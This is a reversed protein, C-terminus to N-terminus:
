DDRRKLVGFVLAISIGILILGGGLFMFTPNRGNTDTETDLPETLKYAGFNVHINEGARITIAKNMNTSPYWDNPPTVSLNYEGEPVEPFCLPQLATTLGSFNESGNHKVLSVGGAEIGIENSDANSNINEDNYLFVCVNAYGNFPTPTPTIPTPTPSPGPTPTPTSYHGLLIKTGAVLTCDSDLDNLEIIDNVSVGMQLQISLCSDKGQVVYYIDGDMDPTPSVVAQGFVASTQLILGALALIIKGFISQRNM